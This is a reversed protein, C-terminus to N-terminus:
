AVEGGVMRAEMANVLGYMYKRREDGIPEAKVCRTCINRFEPGEEPDDGGAARIALEQRYQLSELNFAWRFEAQPLVVGCRMVLNCYALLPEDVDLLHIKPSKM